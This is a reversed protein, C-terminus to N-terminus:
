FSLNLKNYHKRKTNNHNCDKMEEHNIREDFILLMIQYPRDTRYNFTWSLRQPTSKVIFNLPFKFYKYYKNYQIKPIIIEPLLQSFM